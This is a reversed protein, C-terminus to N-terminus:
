RITYQYQYDPGISLSSISGNAYICEQPHPWFGCSTEYQNHASKCATRIVVHSGDKLQAGVCPWSVPELLGRVRSGDTEHGRSELGRSCVIFHSLKYILAKNDRAMKM